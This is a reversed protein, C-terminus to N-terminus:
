KKKVPAPAQQPMEKQIAAAEKQIEDLRKFEAPNKERLKANIAQAEQILKGMKYQQAEEKSMKVTVDQATSHGVAFTVLGIVCLCVLGFSLFNKM